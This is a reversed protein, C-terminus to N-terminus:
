WSMYYVYWPGTVHRYVVEDPMPGGYSQTDGTTLPSLPRRSYAYGKEWGSPALGWSDVSLLVATGWRGVDAVKVGAARLPRRDVHGARHLGAIAQDFQARHRHLEGIMARDSPHPHAWLGLAVASSVPVAVLAFAGLAAAVVPVVRKPYHLLLAIVGCFVAGVGAVLWLGAVALALSHRSPSWLPAQNGLAAGTLAVCLLSASAVALICAVVGGVAYGSGNPRDAEVTV